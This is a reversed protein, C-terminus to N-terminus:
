SVALTLKLRYMADRKQSRGNQFLLTLGKDLTLVVYMCACMCACVCVYVYQLYVCGLM